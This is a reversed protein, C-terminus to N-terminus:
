EEKGCLSCYDYSDTGGAADPVRVWGPHPCEKQLKIIELEYHTQKKLWEQNAAELANHLTTLKEAIKYLPGRHIM